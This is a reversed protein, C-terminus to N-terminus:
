ETVADYSIPSESTVSMSLERRFATAADVELKDRKFDDDMVAKSQDLDLREEDNLVTNAALDAKIRLEMMKVEHAMEAERQKFQLEMASQQADAKIKEMFPDPPPPAPQAPPIQSPDNVFPTIDRIGFTEATRKITEYLNKDEVMRNGSAKLERQVQGLMTLGTRVEDRDGRGTGVNVTMDSRHKWTRPDVTVWNGRLKIAISKMPGARLDAHMRMVLDRLGTEALTRAILKMKKQSANLMMSMGSATKNLSEADLGQNYRTSGTRQESLASFTEIMPLVAGVIPQPSHWQIDAGGTRVPSGPKPSALDTLTQEGASNEDFYPRAYNTLYTSDLLQRILVTKVKQIDEVLETVSRGIHRHPILFPTLASIQIHSIEDVAESGDEWEFFDTGDGYAWIKVLCLKGDDNLDVRAYTEYVEVQDDRSAEQEESNETNHRGTTQEEDTKVSTAKDISAQSFGMSLLDGKEMQYVRGCCKIGELSVKHWRPTGFFEEQPFPEILYEKTKKVCKIKVSIPKPQGDEGHEQYSVDEGTEEDKVTEFGSQELIEYEGDIQDIIAMFETDSLDEYEEISVREKDVWGSWCYSNQQTLAEKIWVYLNEFGRNKNEFIHQVVDGEQKAAEEDEPGTPDFTFLRPQSSFVDMIDSLISEVADSSTTDLFQSRGKVPALGSDTYHEGMYRDFLDSRMGDQADAQTADSILQGIETKLELRM